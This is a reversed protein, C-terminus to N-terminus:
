HIRTRTCNLIDPGAKTHKIDVPDLEQAIGEKGIIYLIKFFKLDKLYRALTHATTLINEINIQFGYSVSLEESEADCVLTETTDITGRAEKKSLKLLQTCSQKYKQLNKSRGDEWGGM